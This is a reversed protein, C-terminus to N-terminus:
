NKKYGKLFTFIRLEPGNNKNLGSNISKQKLTQIGRENLKQGRLEKM